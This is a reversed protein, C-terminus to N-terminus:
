DFINARVHKMFNCLWVFQLDDDALIGFDETELYM